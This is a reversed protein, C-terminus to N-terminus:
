DILFTSISFSGAPSFFFFCLAHQLYGLSSRSPFFFSPVNQSRAASTAPARGVHTAGFGGALHCMMLRPYSQSFVCPWLLVASLLPLLILLLLLLLSLLFCSGTPFFPFPFLFLNPSFFFSDAKIATLKQVIFSVPFRATYLHTSRNCNALAVKTVQSTNLKNKKKEKLEPNAAISTRRQNTARIM